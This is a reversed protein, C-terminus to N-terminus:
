PDNSLVMYSLNDRNSVERFGMNQYIHVAKSNDSKVYLVIEKNPYLSRAKEITRLVLDKGYGKGQFSPHVVFGVELQSNTIAYIQSYGVRDEGCFAIYIYRSKNQNKEFFSLHQEFTAPPQGTLMASVEPNTRSNYLFLIDEPSSALELRM